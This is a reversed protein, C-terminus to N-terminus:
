YDIVISKNASWVRWGWWYKQYCGLVGGKRWFYMQETLGHMIDPSWQYQYRGSISRSQLRILCGKVILDYSGIDWSICNVTSLRPM